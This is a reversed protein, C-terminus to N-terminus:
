KQLQRHYNRSHKKIFINKEKNYAFLYFVLVFLFVGPNRWFHFITPVFLIHFSLFKLYLPYEKKILLTFIVSYIAILPIIGYDVWTGIMGLDSAYIGKSFNAWMLNGFASNGGSPFGNGFIYCFWHPSYQFLYYRLATNRAYDTDGLERQTQNILAMWIDSTFIIGLFLILGFISILLVKNKSKFKFFSYLLVPLIGILMSRNQYLFVFALLLLIVFISKWSFKITFEQVTYYFYFIVFYIGQVYSGFHRDDVFLGDPDLSIYRPNIAGLFWACITGISIWKL